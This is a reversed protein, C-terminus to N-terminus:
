TEYVITSEWVSFFIQSELFLPNFDFWCETKGAPIFM